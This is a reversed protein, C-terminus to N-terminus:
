VGQSAIAARSPRCVLLEKLPDGSSSGFRKLAAEFRRSEARIQQGEITGIARDFARGAGVIRSLDRLDKVSAGVYDRCRRSLGRADAANNAADGSRIATEAAQVVSELHQSLCNAGARAGEAACDPVEDAFFTLSNLFSLLSLCGTYSAQLLATQARRLADCSVSIRKLRAHVDEGHRARKLTHAATGLFSYESPTLSGQPGDSGASGSSSGSGCGAVIAAGVLLLGVFVAASRLRNPRHEM